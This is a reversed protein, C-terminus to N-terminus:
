IKIPETRKLQFLVNSRTSRSQSIFSLPQHHSFTVRSHGRVDRTLQIARHVCVRAINPIILTGPRYRPLIILFKRKSRLVVTILKPVRSLFYSFLQILRRDFFNSRRFLGNCRVFRQYSSPETVRQPVFSSTGPFSSYFEELFVYALSIKQFPFSHFVIQNNARTPLNCRISSSKNCRESSRKVVFELFTHEFCRRFQSTLTSKLWQYSVKESFSIKLVFSSKPLLQDEVIVEKSAHVSGTPLTGVVVSLPSFNLNFTPMILRRTRDEFLRERIREPPRTFTANPLREEAPSGNNGSM